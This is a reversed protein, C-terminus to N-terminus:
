LARGARRGRGEQGPREKMSDSGVLPPSQEECSACCGWPWAGMHEGGPGVCPVGWGSGLTYTGRSDTGWVFPM